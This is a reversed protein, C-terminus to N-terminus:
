KSQKIKSYNELFWTFISSFVFTAVYSLITALLEKAPKVWEITSSETMIYFVCYAISLLTLFALLIFPHTFIRFLHNLRELSNRHKKTQKVYNADYVDVDSDKIDIPETFSISDPINTQM